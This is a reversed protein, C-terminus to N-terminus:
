RPANGSTRAALEDLVAVARSSTPIRIERLPDGDILYVARRHHQTDSRAVVRAPPLPRRLAGVRTVLQIRDGDVFVRADRWRQAFASSSSGRGGGGGGGGSFAGMLAARGSELTPGSSPPLHSGTLVPRTRATFRQADKSCWHPEYRWGVWVLAALVGAFALFSVVDKM